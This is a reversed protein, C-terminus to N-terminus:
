VIGSVVGGVTEFGCTVVVVVPAVIDNVVFSVASVCM